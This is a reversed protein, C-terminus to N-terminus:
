SVRWSTGRDGRAGPVRRHEQGRRAVCLACRVGHVHGGDFPVNRAATPLAGVFFGRPGETRAINKVAAFVNPYIGAVLRQELVQQPVTVSCFGAGCLGVGSM